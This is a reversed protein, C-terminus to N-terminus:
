LESGEGADADVPVPICHFPTSLPCITRAGTLLLTTYPTLLICLPNVPLFGDGWGVVVM